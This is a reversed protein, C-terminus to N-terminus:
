GFLYYKLCCVLLYLYNKVFFCIFIYLLDNYMMNKCLFHPKHRSFTKLMM